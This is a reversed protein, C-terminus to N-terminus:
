DLQEESAGGRQGVQGVEVLDQLHRVDAIRHVPEGGDVHHQARHVQQDPDGFLVHVVSELEVVM